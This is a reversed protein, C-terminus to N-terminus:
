KKKEFKIEEVAFILEDGKNNNNNNKLSEWIEKPPNEAKEILEM